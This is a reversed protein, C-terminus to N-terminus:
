FVPMQKKKRGMVVMEGSISRKRSPSGIGSTSAGDEFGSLYGSDAPSSELVKLARKAVSEKRAKKPTREMHPGPVQKVVEEEEERMRKKVNTNLVGADDYMENIEQYHREASLFTLRMDKYETVEQGSQSGRRAVSLRINETNALLLTSLFYRCIDPQEKEAVVDAFTITTVEKVPQQQEAHGPFQELIETGVAHIDFNARAHSAKLIPKLYAHWRNVEVTVDVNAELREQQRKEAQDQLRKHKETLEVSIDDEMVEKEREKGLFLSEDTKERPSMLQGEDDLSSAGLGSDVDSPGADEDCSFRLSAPPTLFGSDQSMSRRAMAKPLFLSSDLSLRALTSTFVDSDNFEPTEDFGIFDEEDDPVPSAPPTPINRLDVSLNIFLKEPKTKNSNKTGWFSERSSNM